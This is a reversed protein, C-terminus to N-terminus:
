RGYPGTRTRAKHVRCACATCPQVTYRAYTRLYPTASRGCKVKKAASPWTIPASLPRVAVNKRPLLGLSTGLTVSMITVGCLKREVASGFSSDEHM